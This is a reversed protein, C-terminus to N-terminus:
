SNEKAWKLAKKLARIMPVPNNWDCWEGFPHNGDEEEFEKKTYNDCTVKGRSEFLPCGDCKGNPVVFKKCLACSDVDIGLTDGDEDEIRDLYGVELNHKKLNAKRLGNWKQISHEVAEVLSKKAAQGATIPYFEAKWSKLTM